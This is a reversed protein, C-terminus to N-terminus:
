ATQPRAAYREGAADRYLVASAGILWLGTALFAFFDAFPIFLAVGLVAAIRGLVRFSGERGRLTAAAGLMMVGVAPNWAAWLDNSLLNLGQLTSGAVKEPVDALAFTLAAVALFASATLVSGGVLVHEAASPRESGGPRRAGALQAAFAVLLPATLAIVFAVAFARGQHDAYYAAITAGDDGTGPTSSLLGVVLAVLGVVGAGGLAVLKRGEM